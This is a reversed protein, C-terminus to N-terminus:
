REVLKLFTVLFPIYKPEMDPFINLLFQTKTVFESKRIEKDTCGSTASGQYKL